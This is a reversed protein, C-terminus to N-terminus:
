RLKWYNGLLGWGMLYMGPFLVYWPIGFRLQFVYGLVVVCGLVWGIVFYGFFLLWPGLNKEPHAKTKLAFPLLLPLIVGVKVGELFRLLFM